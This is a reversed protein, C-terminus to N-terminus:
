VVLGLDKVGFGTGRQTYLWAGEAAKPAGALCGLVTVTLGLCILRM